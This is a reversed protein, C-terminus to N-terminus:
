DKEISPDKPQVPFREDLMKIFEGWDDYREMLTAIETVRKILVPYGVDGTLFQHMKGKRKHRKQEEKLKQRIGPTLRDYIINNTDHGLFSPYVHKENPYPVKRLRCLQEYYHDDFTKTWERINKAVMKALMDQLAGKDRKKDQGTAEDILATLAVENLAKSLAVAKQITAQQAPTFKNSPNLGAAIYVWCIESLLGADFGDKDAGSKSIYHVPQLKERLQSSIFPQLYGADIFAPLGEARSNGRYPRGLASFVGTRTIIRRGDDLVAVDIDTDVLRIKGEGEATVQASLRQKQQALRKAQASKEAPTLKAQRARGGRANNPIKKM